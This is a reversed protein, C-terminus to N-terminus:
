NFCHSSYSFSSLKINLIKLCFEAANQRLGFITELPEELVVDLGQKYSYAVQGALNM